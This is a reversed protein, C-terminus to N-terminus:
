PQAPKDTPSIDCEVHRGRPAQVEPRNAEVGDVTLHAAIAVSLVLQAKAFEGYDGADGNIIRPKQPTPKM